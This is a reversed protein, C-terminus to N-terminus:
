GPPPTLWHPVCAGVGLRGAAQGYRGLWAGACVQMHDLAAPFGANQGDSM